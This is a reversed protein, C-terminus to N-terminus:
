MRSDISSLVDHTRQQEPILQERVFMQQEASLKTLDRRYDALGHDEGEELASVAPAEGFVSAGGEVLKAIGGWLGAEQSPQGGLSLIRERLLKVRSQHSMQLSRLQQVVSPSDIKDICQEYTEVASIEGRLFSNLQEIDNKTSTM